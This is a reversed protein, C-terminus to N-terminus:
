TRNLDCNTALFYWTNNESHHPETIVRGLVPPIQEQRSFPKTTCGPGYSRDDSVTFIPIVRVRMLGSGVRGSEVRGSWVSDSGDRGCGM